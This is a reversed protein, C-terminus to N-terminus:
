KSVYRWIRVIMARAGSKTVPGARHAIEVESEVSCKKEGTFVEKFFNTIYATPNGKKM